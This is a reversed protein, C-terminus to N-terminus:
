RDSRFRIITEGPSQLDLKDRAQIELYADDNRLWRLKAEERAQLLRMEELRATVKAEEALRAKHEDFVPMVYTIAIGLGTAGLGLLLVSRIRRQWVPAELRRDAVPQWPERFDPPM